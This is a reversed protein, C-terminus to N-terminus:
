WCSRKKIIAIQRKERKAHMEMEGQRGNGAKREDGVKERNGFSKLWVCVRLLDSDKDTTESQFEPLLAFSRRRLWETVWEILSPYFFSGRKKKPSRIVKGYLLSITVCGRWWWRQLLLDGRAMGGSDYRRKQGMWTHIGVRGVALQCRSENAPLGRQGKTRKEAWSRTSAAGSYKHAFGVTKSRCDSCAAIEKKREWTLPKQEDNIEM